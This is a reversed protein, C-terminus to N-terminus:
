LTRKLQCGDIIRPLVNLEILICCLGYLWYLNTISVWNHLFVFFKLFSCSFFFDQLYLFDVFRWSTRIFQWFCGFFTRTTKM